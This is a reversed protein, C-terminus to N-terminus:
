QASPTIVRVTTFKGNKVESVAVARASGHDKRFTVQGGSLINPFSPRAELAKVLAAGSRPDGGGRSVDGILTALYMVGEYPTGPIWDAEKNYKAKYAALFHQM